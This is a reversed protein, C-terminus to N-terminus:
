NIVQPCSNYATGTVNTSECYLQNNIIVIHFYVSRLVHGYGDEQRAIESHLYATQGAGNVYEEAVTVTGCPRAVYSCYQNPSLTVNGIYRWDSGFVPNVASVKTNSISNIASYNQQQEQTSPSLIRFWMDYVYVDPFISQPLIEGANQMPLHAMSCTEKLFSVIISSKPLQLQTENYFTDFTLHYLGAVQSNGYGAYNSLPHANTYNVPVIGAGRETLLFTGNRAIAIPGSPAPNGFEVSMASGWPITSTVVSATREIGAIGGNGALTNIRAPYPETCNASVMGLGQDQFASELPVSANTIKDVITLPSNGGIWGRWVATDIPYFVFAKTPVTVNVTYTVSVPLYTTTTISHSPYSEHATLQQPTDGIQLFVRAQQIPVARKEPNICYGDVIVGDSCGGAGSIIGATTGNMSLFPVVLLVISLLVAIAIGGGIGAILYSQRPM